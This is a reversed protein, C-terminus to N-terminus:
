GTRTLRQVTAEARLPGLEMESVLIAAGTLATHPSHDVAVIKLGMTAIPLVRSYVVDRIGALLDEGAGALTGGIAIVEPNLFSVADAIVEGLVLGAQRVLRIAQPEGSRFLALVDSADQAAIGLARLDRAIAWGGARAEVCGRKGCRCLPADDSMFQIHGIDGAVGKYGRYVVGQAVIGSGIGTGAKVYFFHGADRGAGRTEALTLLNVDNEVYTPIGLHQSMWDRVPVDEWAKIISPGAPRGAEFDVPAPLGICIGLVERKDRGIEELMGLWTSAMSELTVYPAAFIDFQVVQEILIQPQLDTIALRFHHEGLDAVLTLACQRNLDILQTPRGRGSVRRDAEEILGASFLKNLRQLVTARALGSSSLIDQRSMPGTAALEAVIAGAGAPVHNIKGASRATIAM